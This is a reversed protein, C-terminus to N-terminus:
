DLYGLGRLQEEIDASEAASYTDVDRAEDRSERFTPDATPELRESPIEGDVDEPISTGSLLLALPFVDLISRDPAAGLRSFSPGSTVLIGNQRHEGMDNDSFLEGDNLGTHVKCRMGDMVFVICPAYEEYPGSFIEERTGIDTVLPEDREPHRISLLKDRIEATLDPIQERPVTGEPHVDETNLFIVNQESGVYATTESWDVDSAALGSEREDAAPITEKAVDFLTQPLIERVDGIGLRNKARLLNERTLGARRLLRRDLSRTESETDVTLYGEQRLWELVHFNRDGQAGHGHDSMVIIDTDDSVLEVLEGLAKDQEVYTQKLRRRDDVLYHGAVDTATFVGFFVDVDHQSFLTEFARKRHWIAAKMDEFVQESTFDQLEPGMATPKVKYREGMEAELETVVEPPSGPNTRNPIPWGSIMYGHELETPPYTEPVNVVGCSVGAADLAEWLTEAHVDSLNVPVREYSNEKRRTFGFCGHKGGQKGTFMWQWAPSSLPPDSSRLRGHSGSEMLTRLTPLDDIWENVLDPDLGDLGILLTDM